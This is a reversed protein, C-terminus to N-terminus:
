VRRAHAAGALLEPHMWPEVSPCILAMNQYVAWERSRLIEHPFEGQRAFRLFTLMTELLSLLRRKALLSMCRQLSAIGQLSRLPLRRFFASRRRFALSARQLTECCGGVQCPPPRGGQLGGSGRFVPCGSFTLQYFGGNSKPRTSTGYCREEDAALLQAPRGGTACWACTTRM